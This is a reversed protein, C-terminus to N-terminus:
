RAERPRGALPPLGRRSPPASARPAGRGRRDRRASCASWRGRARVEPRPRAAPVSDGPSRRKMAASASRQACTARAALARRRRRTIRAISSRCARRRPSGRRTRPRSRRAAARPAHEDHGRVRGAELRVPPPRDSALPSGCPWPAGASRLPTAPTGRGHAADTTAPRQPQRAVISPRRCRPAVPGRHRREVDVLQDAEVHLAAAIRRRAHGVEDRRADLPERMSARRVSCASATM